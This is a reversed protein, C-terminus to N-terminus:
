RLITSIGKFRFSYAFITVLLCPKVHIMVLLKPIGTSDLPTYEIFLKHRSSPAMNGSVCSLKFVKSIREADVIKWFVSVDSINELVIDQRSTQNILAHDFNILKPRIMFNVHCGTCSLKIVEVKPNNQISLLLRNEFKAKRDPLAFLKLIEESNPEICLSEPEFIFTKLEPDRLCISIACPLASINKFRLETGLPEFISCFNQDHNPLPPSFSPM